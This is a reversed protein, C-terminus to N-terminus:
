RLRKKRSDFWGIDYTSLNEKVKVRDIGQTGDAKLTHEVRVHVARGRSIWLVTIEFM